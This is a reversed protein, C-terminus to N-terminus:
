SETWTRQQAIGTLGDLCVPYFNIVYDGVPLDIFALAVTGGVPTLSSKRFLAGNRFLEYDIRITDVPVSSFLYSGGGGTLTGCTTACFTNSLVLPGTGDLTFNSTAFGTAPGSLNSTTILAEGELIRQPFTGDSDTFVMRFKVPKKNVWNKFLTFSQNTTDNEDLPIIGALTIKYGNTLPVLRAWSGTGVTSAGTTETVGEIVCETACIFEAFDISSLRFQIIVDEGKIM